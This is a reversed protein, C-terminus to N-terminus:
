ILGKRMAFAKLVAYLGPNERMLESAARGKDAAFYDLPNLRDLDSKRISRLQARQVSSFGRWKNLGIFAQADEESGYLPKENFTQPRWELNGNSAVYPTPNRAEYADSERKAEANILAMEDNFARAEVLLQEMTVPGDTTEITRTLNGGKHAAVLAELREVKAELTEAPPTLNNDSETSFAPIIDGTPESMLTVKM